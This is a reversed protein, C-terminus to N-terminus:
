IITIRSRMLYPAGMAEIRFPNKSTELGLSVFLIQDEDHHIIEGLAAKMKEFRLDDLPCEFVSFQIRSGFSECAKAVQRLRKPHCIDYCVLYRTRMDAHLLVTIVIQRVM